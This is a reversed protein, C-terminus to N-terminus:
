RSLDLARQDSPHCGGQPEGTTCSTARPRDTCLWVLSPSQWAYIARGHRWSGADRCFLDCGREFISRQIQCLSGVHGATLLSLMVTVIDRVFDDLPSFIMELQTHFNFKVKSPNLDDIKERYAQILDVSAGQTSPQLWFTALPRGVVYNPNEISGMTPFHAYIWAQM